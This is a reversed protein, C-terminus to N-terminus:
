QEIRPRRRGEGGQDAARRGGQEPHCGFALCALFPARLVFMLLLLFLSPLSRPLTSM